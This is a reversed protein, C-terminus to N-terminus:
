LIERLFEHFHSKYVNFNYYQLTFEQLLKVNKFEGSLSLGNKLEALIQELNKPDVLKGLKGWQLAEVSGDSNGAIVSTGCAVAEIFVIGFGEKQSPMIFVDALQYFDLIEDNAIFGPMVVNNELGLSHVLEEIRQKESYDAQGALIYIFSNTATKAYETLVTLVNDYGKYKERTQMRTLTFIVKTDKQIGFRKKLYEPKGYLSPISFFPDLCNPLVKIKGPDVKNVTVIKQKTFQSVSIIRKAKNLIWKRFLKQKPWAEIGHTIVVIQIDPNFLYMIWIPFSLNLHGVIVTKFKRSTSLLAYMYKLRYGSFGRFFYRPFYRNDMNSDHLSFVMTNHADQQLPLCHMIVRNMKEIGGTQGFATLYTFLIDSNVSDGNDEINLVNGLTNSIFIGWIRSASIKQNQFQKFYKKPVFWKNQFSPIKKLWIEFPFKFGQKKRNWIPEPMLDKFAEILLYKHSKHPFKVEDPLSRVFEVLEKDLFPVRLELGFWMSQMDSDKLLQNLMYVDTELVSVKSKAGINEEIGILPDYDSIVDWVQKETIHLISATDAPTFLGRYLLYESAKIRRKLFEIKKNPYKLLSGPLGHYLISMRQLNQFIGTRHFSPYGGFLEDGGLGSLVVKLGAEHAYKCIFHSNVADSTPQDLSEFIEKWQHVFDQEKVVFSHHFTGAKEIILDQYKKESFFDDEFDISLTRVPASANQATLLALISSDVGGSLFVGVEVDAILHRKVADEVIQRTISVADQRSIHQYSFRPKYWKVESSEQTKLDILFYHGKSLPKVNKLTTVPEPLFGFTLFWIRWDLNVEWNPDIALFGKVESSFYLDGSKKGIYLPKIGMCDRAAFLTGAVTDTIIFAFMGQLKNLLEEKWADYGALIVETDSHTNFQYGIAQLEEKLLLYNYIEGNFIIWYRDSLYAMPQNGQASLDIISLRRHGLAYGLDVNIQVGENDPGGRYMAGAMKRIGLELSDKNGSVIAAIRCM